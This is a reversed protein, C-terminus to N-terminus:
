LIRDPIVRDLLLFSLLIGDHDSSSLAHELCEEIADSAVRDQRILTHKMSKQITLNGPYTLVAVTVSPIGGILLKRGCVSIKFEGGIVRRGLFIRFAGECL